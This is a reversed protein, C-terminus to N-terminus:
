KKRKRLKDLEDCIEEVHNRLYEILEADQSQHCEVPVDSGFQQGPAYLEDPFMAGQPSPRAIWPGPTAARSLKRLKTTKIM